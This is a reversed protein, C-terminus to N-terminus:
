PLYTGGAAARTVTMEHIYISSGAAELRILRLPGAGPEERLRLEMADLYGQKNTMEWADFLAWGLMPQWFPDTLECSYEGRDEDGCTHRTFFLTDDDPQVAIRVTFPDFALEIMAVQEPIEPFAFVRVRRLYLSEDSFFAQSLNMIVAEL